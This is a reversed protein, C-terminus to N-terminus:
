GPASIYRGATVLGATLDLEWVSGKEPLEEPRPHLHAGSALLRDLLRALEAGHSSMVVAKGEFRSFSGLLSKASSGEALLPEKRVQEDIARGLPEVTQMCRRHPSSFVRGVPGATLSLAVLRAQRRGSKSLPRVKDNKKWAARSGAKAHRVLHVRGARPSDALKAGWEFVARDRPYTLMRTADAATLWRIEDVESNPRFKGSLHEFLWYKVLKPNTNQSNYAISGLRAIRKTNSGTEEKIERTAAASYKEGADLKGKPLSWDDYRPRHVILFERDNGRRRTVVGGSARISPGSRTPDTM